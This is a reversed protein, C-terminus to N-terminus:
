LSGGADKFHLTTVTKTVIATACDRTKLTAPSFAHTEKSFDVLYNYVWSADGYTLNRDKYKFSVLLKNAEIGQPSSQLRLLDRMALMLQQRRTENPLTKTIAKAAIRVYDIYIDKKGVLFGVFDGVEHDNLKLREYFFPTKQLNTARILCDDGQFLAVVLEDFDFSYGITGITHMTNSFLTDARGSQFQYDVHTTVNPHSMSWSVNPKELIDLVDDPVGCANYLWRMFLDTAENKSTDQESIDCSLTDVDNNLDSVQLLRKRVRNRFIKPSHGYGPFVGLRMHQFVCREAWSVWPSVIANIEKPQASVMQGGKIYTNGASDEKVNLWAEDGIKSKIQTKNFCKIRSTTSTSEGYIHMDPQVTKAANRLLSQGKCLSLEDCTPARLCDIDVFKQFGLKLNEFLLQTNKPGAPDKKNVAYREIATAFTHNTTINQRMGFLSAMQGVTTGYENFALAAQNKFRVKRGELPLRHKDISLHINTDALRSSNVALTRLINSTRVTDSVKTAMDCISEEVIEEREMEYDVNEETHTNLDVITKAFAKENVGYALPLNFSVTQQARAQLKVLNCDRDRFTSTVSDKNATVKVFETSVNTVYDGIDTTGLPTKFDLRSGIAICECGVVPKFGLIKAHHVQGCHVNLVETHRTISVLKQGQVRVILLKATTSLYLSFVRSRLGQISAVTPYGSSAAHLRDYCAGFMHEHEEVCGPQCVKPLSTVTTTKVVNFSNVVRSLTTTAVPETSNLHKVIDIPTKYALRMRKPQVDFASSLNYAAHEVVMQRSDGIAYVKVSMASFFPLLRPDFLFVEDLFLTYKKGNAFLAVLGRSWSYAPLGDVIYEMALAKTPTIIIYDEPKKVCAPKGFNKVIYEKMNHTKGSGYTGEKIFIDFSYPLGGESIAEKLNAAVQQHLEKFHAQTEGTLETIIKECNAELPINVKVKVFDVSPSKWTPGIIKNNEIAVVTGHFPISDFCDCIIVDMFVPLKRVWRALNSMNIDMIDGFLYYDAAAPAKPDFCIGTKQMLQPNNRLDHTVDRSSWAGIDLRPIIPKEVVPKPKDNGIVLSSRQQNRITMLIRGMYNKGKGDPGRGWFGDAVNEILKSVGTSLLVTMNSKKKYKEVNLTYLLDLSHKECCKIVNSSNALRKAASPNLASIEEVSFPPAPSKYYQYPVENCNFSKGNFVIKTTYFNSFEGYKAATSKFLVDSGAVKGICEKFDVLGPIVRDCVSAKLAGSLKKFLDGDPISWVIEDFSSFGGYICYKFTETVMSVNNAFIGLGWASLVIKGNGCGLVTKWKRIWLQKLEEVSLAKCSRENLNPAPATVINIDFDLSEKGDRERYFFPVKHTVLVVDTHYNKAGQAYYSAVNTQANYKPHIGLALGTCRALYEEQSRSGGQWGGCPRTTSACNLVWDGQKVVDQLSVNVVSVKPHQNGTSTSTVVATILAPMGELKEFIPYVMDEVCDEEITDAIEGTIPLVEASETEVAESKYSYHEGSYFIKIIGRTNSGGPMTYTSKGALQIDVEQLIALESVMFDAVDSNWIGDDIYASIEDGTTDTRMDLEDIKKELAKKYKANTIKRWPIGADEMAAEAAVFLCNGGPALKESDVSPKEDDGRFANKRVVADKVADKIKMFKAAPLILFEPREWVRCNENVAFVENAQLADSTIITWNELEKLLRGSFGSELSHRYDQIKVAVRSRKFAVTKRLTFLCRYQNFALHQKSCSFGVDAYVNRTLTTTCEVCSVNKLFAISQKPPLVPIIRRGYDKPIAWHDVKKEFKKWFLQDNFPMACANVVKANGLLKMISATKEVNTTGDLALYRKDFYLSADYKTSANDIRRTEFIQAHMCADYSSLELTCHGEESFAFVEPEICNEKLELKIEKLTPFPELKSAVGLVALCNHYCYGPNPPDILWVKEKPVKFHPVDFGAAVELLVEAPKKDSKFILRRLYENAFADGMVKEAFHRVDEVKRSDELVVHMRMRIPETIARFLRMFFGRKAPISKVINNAAFGIAKTAKQRSIFARILVLIVINAFDDGSVTYGRQISFNGVVITYIKASLIAGAHQRNIERDQRDFLFSETETLINAPISVTHMKEFIVRIGEADNDKLLAAIRPMADVFDYIEVNKRDQQVVRHIHVSRHVKTIAILHVVGIKKYRELTLNFKFGYAHGDLVNATAYARWTARDHTYAMSQDGIFSMITKDGIHTIRIQNAHDEADHGHMVAEPLPMAAYMMEVSKNEFISFLGKIDVHFLVSNCVVKEAPQQCYQAGFVCATDTLYNNLRANYDTSALLAKKVRYEERGDMFMCSLHDSGRAVEKFMDPGIEHKSHPLVLDAIYAQVFLDPHSSFRLLEFAKESSVVTLPSISANIRLIANNDLMIPVPIAYKIRTQLLTDYFGYLTNRCEPGRNDEFALSSPNEALAPRFLIPNNEPLEM